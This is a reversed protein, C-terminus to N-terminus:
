SELNWDRRLASSDYLLHHGLKFLPLNLSEFGKCKMFLLSDYSYCAIPFCVSILRPTIGVQIDEEAEVASIRVRSWRTSYRLM